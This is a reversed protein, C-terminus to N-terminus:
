QLCMINSFFKVLIIRSLHGQFIGTEMIDHDSGAYKCSSSLLVNSNNSNKNSSIQVSINRWFFHVPPKFALCILVMLMRWNQQFWWFCNGLIIALLLYPTRNNKSLKTSQRCVTYTDFLAICNLLIIFILVIFLM